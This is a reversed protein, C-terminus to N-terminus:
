QLSRQSRQPLAPDSCSDTLLILSTTETISVRVLPIFFGMYDDDFLLRRRINSANPQRVTVDLLLTRIIVIIYRQDPYAAHFLLEARVGEMAEHIVRRILHNQESLRMKKKPGPALVLETDATWIFDSSLASQPTSPVSSRLSSGAQPMDVHEARTQSNNPTSHHTTASVQWVPRQLTHKLSKEHLSYHSRVEITLAEEFKSAQRPAALDQEDFWDNESEIDSEGPDSIENDEAVYPTSAPVLASLPNLTDRAGGRSPYFSSASFFNFTLQKTFLCFKYAPPESRGLPQHAQQHTEVIGDNRNPGHRSEGECEKGHETVERGDSIGELM